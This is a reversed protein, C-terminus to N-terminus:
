KPFGDKIYKDMALVYSLKPTLSPDEAQPNYGKPTSSCKWLPQM